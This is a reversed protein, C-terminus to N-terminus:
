MLSFKNLENRLIPQDFSTHRIGGMCCTDSLILKAEVTAQRAEGPQRNRKETKPSTPFPLHHCNEYRSAFLSAAASTVTRRRHTCDSGSGQQSATLTSHRLRPLGIAPFYGMGDRSISRSRTHLYFILSKLKM